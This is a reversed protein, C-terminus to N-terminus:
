KKVKDAEKKMVFGGNGDVASYHKHGCLLWPKINASVRIGAKSLISFLRKPDPFRKSFLHLM